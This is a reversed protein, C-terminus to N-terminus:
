VRGLLAAQYAAARSRNTEALMNLATRGLERADRDEADLEELERKSEAVRHEAAAADADAGAAAFTHSAADLMGAGAYVEAGGKAV